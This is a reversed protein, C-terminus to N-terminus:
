GRAAAAPAASALRQLDRLSSQLLGLEGPSLPGDRDDGARRVVTALKVMAESMTAATAAAM